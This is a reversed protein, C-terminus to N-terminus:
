SEEKSLSKQMHYALHVQGDGELSSESEYVEFGFSRYLSLAPVQESNVGLRATPIGATFVVALIAQLMARGIGKGRASPSVYVGVVTAVGPEEPNTFAGIMGVIRGDLRAFLLWSGPGASSQVLRDRWFSEPKVVQDRYVSGFAQPSDLLAELRIERYLPWDQPNLPAIELSPDPPM